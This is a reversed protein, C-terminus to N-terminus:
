RECSAGTTCAKQLKLTYVTLPSSGQLAILLEDGQRQVIWREERVPNVVHVQAESTTYTGNYPNVFQGIHLEQSYTGDPRLVLTGQVSMAGDSGPGFRMQQYRWVGVLDVAPTPAVPQQVGPKPAEPKPAEPKPAAPKPTGPKPAEPKPAAPKPTVPKPSEPKPAEPKPAEPKPAGPKPAGPDPAAAPAPEPRTSTTPSTSANTRWELGLPNSRITPSTAPPVAGASSGTTQWEVGLPNGGSTASSSGTVPPPASSSSGGTQWEVGLPNVPSDPAGPRPSTTPSTPSTPTSAVSGGRREGTALIGGSAHLMRVSKGETEYTIVYSGTEDTLLWYRLHDMAFYPRIERLRGRSPGWTYRGDSAILLLGRGTGPTYRQYVSRGDTVHDVTGSIWLNWAGIVRADLAQPNRVVTYEPGESWRQQAGAPASVLAIVALTLIGPILVPLRSM